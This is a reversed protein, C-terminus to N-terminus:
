LVSKNIQTGFENFYYKYRAYKIIKDSDRKRCMFEIALYELYKFIFWDYYWKNVATM